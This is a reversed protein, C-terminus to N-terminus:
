VEKANSRSKRSSNYSVKMQCEKCTAKQDLEDDVIFRSWVASSKSGKNGISQEETPITKM